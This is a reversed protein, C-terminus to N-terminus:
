RRKTEIARPQEPAIGESLIIAIFEQRDKTPHTARISRVGSLLINAGGPLGAVVEITTLDRKGSKLIVPLKYLTEAHAGLDQVPMVSDFQPELSLSLTRQLLASTLTGLSPMRIAARGQQCIDELAPASQIAAFVTALSVFGGFFRRLSAEDEALPQKRAATSRRELSMRCTEALSNTLLGWPMALDGEKLKHGTPGFVRLRVPYLSSVFEVTRRSSRNTGSWDFRNTQLIPTWPTGARDTLPPPLTTLEVFSITETSSSVAKVGLLLRLNPKWQLGVENPAAPSIQSLRKVNELSPTFTADIEPLRSHEQNTYAATTLHFVSSVVLLFILLRM